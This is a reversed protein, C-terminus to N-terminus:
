EGQRKMRSRAGGPAPPPISSEVYRTDGFGEYPVASAASRGRTGNVKIAEEPFDLSEGAEEAELEVPESSVDVGNVQEVSEGLLMANFRNTLDNFAELLARFEKFPVFARAASNLNNKEQYARAALISQVFLDKESGAMVGNNYNVPLQIEGCICRYFKPSTESVQSFGNSGTTWIAVLIEQFFISGCKACPVPERANRTVRGIRQAPSEQRGIRVPTTM